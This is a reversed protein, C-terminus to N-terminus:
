SVNNGINSVNTSNGKKNNEMEMDLILNFIVVIPHLPLSLAKMM